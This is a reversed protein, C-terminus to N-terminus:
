AVAEMPQYIRVIRAPKDPVRVTVVGHSNVTWCELGKKTAEMYCDETNKSWESAYFGVWMDAQEVIDKSKSGKCITVDVYIGELAVLTDLGPADGTVVDFGEPFRGCLMQMVKYFIERQGEAILDLKGPRKKNGVGWTRSGVIAIKM